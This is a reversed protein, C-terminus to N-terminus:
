AHRRRRRKPARRRRALPHGETDRLEEDLERRSMWAVRTWTVRRAITDLLAAGTLVALVPWAIARAVQAATAVVDDGFALDEAHGLVARLSAAVTVLALVALLPGRAVETMAPARSAAGSAAPPRVTGGGAAARPGAQAAMVMLAVALV